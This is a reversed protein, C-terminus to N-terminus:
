ATPPAQREARIAELDYKGSPLRALRERRVYEAPQAYEALEARCFRRLRDISGGDRLVVYALIRSGREPDPEADIVVEEVEGSAHLVDAVEDPGIRFGMTKIVRDRRGVFHLFGDADRRVVDGSYVVRESDPVGATRLPNSRFTRSTAEPDNWYGLAITPGRHVLEGPEGVAAPRDHEDLVLIETDPMARGM